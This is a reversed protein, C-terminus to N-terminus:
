QQEALTLAEHGGNQDFTYIKLNPDVVVFRVSTGANEFLAENLVNEIIRKLGRAGTKKEVAVEAIKRISCPHFFLEM